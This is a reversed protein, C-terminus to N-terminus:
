QSNQLSFTASFSFLSARRCFNLTIIPLFSQDQATFAAELSTPKGVNKKLAKLSNDIKRCM